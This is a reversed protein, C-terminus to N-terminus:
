LWMYVYALMGGTGQSVVLLHSYSFVFKSLNSRLQEYNIKCGVQGRGETRPPEQCGAHCPVAPEVPGILTWAERLVVGVVSIWSWHPHIAAALVGCWQSPNTKLTFRNIHSTFSLSTLEFTLGLIDSDLPILPWLYGNLEMYVKTSTDLHMNISSTFRRDIVQLYSFVSAHTHARKTLCEGSNTSNSLYVRTSNPGVGEWTTEPKCACVCVCM